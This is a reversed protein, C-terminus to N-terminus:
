RKRAKSIPEVRAKSENETRTRSERISALSLVKPKNVSKGKKSNRVKSSKSKELDKTRPKSIATKIPAINKVSINDALGIEIPKRRNVVEINKATMDRLGYQMAAKKIEGPSLSTERALKLRRNQSKLTEVEKRLKSNQIGYDISSFHQRAAAFFGLVLILGCVMTLM